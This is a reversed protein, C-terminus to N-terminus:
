RVAILESREPAGSQNFTTKMLVLQQGRMEFEVPRGRPDPPGVQFEYNPDTFPNKGADTWRYQDVLSWLTHCTLKGADGVLHKQYSREESASITVSTSYTKQITAEVDLKLWEFTGEAGVKVTKAFSNTTTSDSGVRYTTTVDFADNGVLWVAALGQDDMPVREWFRERLLCPAGQLMRGTGERHVRWEVWDFCIVDGGTLCEGNSQGDEYLPPVQLRGQVMLAFRDM